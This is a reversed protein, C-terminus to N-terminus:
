QGLGVVDLALQTVTTKTVPGLIMAAVRGEADIVITSPIASPPVISRFGLLQEGNPDFVSPYPVKYRRVFAQAPEVTADRTNIGVVAVGRRELAKSAEVLDPAEKRCPPCWSGWVNLVVVKGKYDALDLPKGDLTKGTLEPAAKREGPPITTVGSGSVYRVDGNSSQDPAGGNGSCGAALLAVAVPLLLAFKTLRSTAPLRM